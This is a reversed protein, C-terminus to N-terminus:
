QFVVFSTVNFRCMYNSCTKGGLGWPIIMVKKLIEVTISCFKRMVTTFVANMMSPSLKGNSHRERNM